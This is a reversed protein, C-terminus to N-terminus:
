CDAFRSARQTRAARPGCHVLTTADEWDFQTPVADRLKQALATVEHDNSTDFLSKDLAQVEFFLRSM